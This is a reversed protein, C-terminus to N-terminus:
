RRSPFRYSRLSPPFKLESLSAPASQPFPGFLLFPVAASFRFVFHSVLIHLGSVSIVLCSDSIDAGLIFYRAVSDFFRATVCPAPDLRRLHAARESQSSSSCVWDSISWFDSFSLRFRLLGDLERPSRFQAPFIESCPVLFPDLWNEKRSWSRATHISFIEPSASRSFRRGTFGLPPQSFFPRAPGQRVCFRFRPCSFCPPFCDPRVFIEFKDLIQFGHWFLFQYLLVLNLM